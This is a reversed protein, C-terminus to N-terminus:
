QNKKARFKKCGLQKQKAYRFKKDVNSVPIITICTRYPNNYYIHWALIILVLFLSDPLVHVISLHINVHLYLIYNNRIICVYM